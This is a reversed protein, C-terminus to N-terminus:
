LGAFAALGFAVTMAVYPLNFALSSGASPKVSTTAGPTGSGGAGGPAPATTDTNNPCQLMQSLPLMKTTAELIQSEDCAPADNGQKTACSAAAGTANFTNTSWSCMCSKIDTDMVAIALATVNVANNAFAGMITAKKEPTMSACKPEKPLSAMTCDSCSNKVFSQADASAVMTVAVAVFALISSKM